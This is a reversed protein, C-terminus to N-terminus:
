KGNYYHNINDGMHVTSEGHIDNRRFKHGPRRAAESISDVDGECSEFADRDRRRSSAMMAPGRPETV